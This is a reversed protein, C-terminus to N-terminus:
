SKQDYNTRLPQQGASAVGKPNFAVSKDSNKLEGSMQRIMADAIGFTRDNALESAMQGDAMEQYFRQQKSNLLSGEGAVAETASRMSKLMMQIFMAEFQVASAELGDQGKLSKLKTTDQYFSPSATNPTNIPEM